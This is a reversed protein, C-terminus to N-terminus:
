HGNEEQSPLYGHLFAHVGAAVAANRGSTPVGGDLPNEASVLLILHTAARDPDAIRLLGRDALRRLHNALAGNVRVPGAQRWADITDDPLHGAEADLQRVLAFHEAHGTIPTALAQGLEVLAAELDTVEGLHEDILAVQADAVEATSETIVTQFLQLKCYFHNYITRTSVGAEAAIMEISTRIFGNRAFMTRAGTLIARRKGALGRRPSTPRATAEEHRSM